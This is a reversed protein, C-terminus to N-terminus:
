NFLKLYWWLLHNWNFFVDESDLHHQWNHKSLQHFSAVALLFSSYAAFFVTWGMLFYLVIWAFDFAGKCFCKVLHRIVLCLMTTAVGRLVEPRKTLQANSVMKLVEWCYWKSFIKGCHCKCCNQSSRVVNNTHKCDCMQLALYNRHSLEIYIRPQERQWVNINQWVTAGM